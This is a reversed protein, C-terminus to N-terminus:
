CLVTAVERGASHDKAAPAASAKRRAPALTNLVDLIRQAREPSLRRRGRLYHCLNTEHIGLAEAIAKQRVMTRAIRARLSAATIRSM